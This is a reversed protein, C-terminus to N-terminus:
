AAQLLAVCKSTDPWKTEAYCFGPVHLVANYVLNGIVLFVFGLLQLWSHETWPSGWAQNGTYYLGLSVLWVVVTRCSDVLTRTLNSIRKTVNFCCINCMGVGFIFSVSLLQLSASSSWMWVTDSLDEVVGHDAGPAFNFVLLLAGQLLVGWFGEMGLAKTAPVRLGQLLHEEFVGQFSNSIQSIVILMVGLSVSNHSTMVVGDGGSNSDMIASGGVCCLGLVSVAVGLWRYPLLDKKLILVTLIATFVINSSRMMQYVSVPVM